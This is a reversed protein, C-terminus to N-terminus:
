AEVKPQPKKAKYLKTAVIEYARNTENPNIFNRGIPRAVMDSLQLGTSNTKKDALIIDFSYNRESCIRRFELELEMDEKHGRKEVVIHSSKGEEQHVKMFDNLQSLCSELAIHYINKSSKSQPLTTKDIVCTIIEFPVDRIIASLDNMFSEYIEKTYLKQFIEKRRRIDNEHFIVIDHGFYKFKLAQFKPVIDKIYSEKKFISFALVFIPYDKDISALSHDGSEDVYVIFKSFDKM